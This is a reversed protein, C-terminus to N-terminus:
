EKEIPNVLTPLDDEFKLIPVYNNDNGLRFDFANFTKGAQPKAKELAERWSQRSGQNYLMETFYYMLDYGIRAYEDASKRTFDQYKKDFSVSVQAEPDIFDPHVIHVRAQQYDEYTISQFKLWAEPAFILGNFNQERVAKILGEALVQSTSSIFIVGLGKAQYQAIIDGLENSQYSKLEQKGLLKISNDKGVAQAYHEALQQNRSLNDHLILLNKNRYNADYFDLVYQAQQAKSAHYLFSFDSNVLARNESVPNIIQIQRSAALTSVKEYNADRLPGVILDVQEFEGQEFWEGVQEASEPMEYAYLEVPMERLTDLEQQAIRMGQYIGSSIRFLSTTDRKKRLREFDFPLIAAVKYPERKKIIRDIKRSKPLEMGYNAAIEKMLFYEEISSGESALKDILLQTILTDQPNQQQLLRLENLSIKQIFHGKMNQIDAQLTKAQIKKLYELALPIKQERFALDALHYYTESQHEWSPYRELLQQWYSQALKYAQSRMASIAYFYHAKIVLDHTEQTSIAEEFATMAQRYNGAKFGSQGEAYLKQLKRSQAELSHTSLLLLASLCLHWLQVQYKM